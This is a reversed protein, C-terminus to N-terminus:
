ESLWYATDMLSSVAYGHELFSWYAMDLGKFVGYRVSKWVTYISFEFVLKLHALDYERYGMRRWVSDAREREEALASRLRMNSGELESVRERLRQVLTEVMHNYLEHIVVDLGIEFNERSGKDSAPVLSDTPMEPEIVRDVGIEITDRVSSEVDDEAEDDRELGVENDVRIEDAVAADAAIDAEIDAMVDSDIDEESDVEICGESSGEPSSAASLGRITKCPPLLDVRTPSLSGPTPTALPVSTVLSREGGVPLLLRTHTLYHFVRLHIVALPITPHRLLILLIYVHLFSPLLQHMFQSSLDEFPDTESTTHIDLDLVRHTFRCNAAAVEPVAPVITSVDAPIVITITGFMVVRSTSSGVSEKSSDFSISIVLFAM